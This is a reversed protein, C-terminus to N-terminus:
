KTSQNRIIEKRLSKRQLIQRIDADTAGSAEYESIDYSESFEVIDAAM